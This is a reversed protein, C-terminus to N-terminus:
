GSDVIEEPRDGPGTSCAIIGEDPDSEELISELEHRTGLVPVNHIRMGKLNPDGNVLGIVRYDKFRNNAIDRLVPETSDGCGVVLVKKRLLAANKVTEHFRRLIRIGGLLCNCLVWDLVIVARSYPSFAHITAVGLLITLSSLTTTALISELDRVGTFRWVSRFLGFAQAWIMRIVVVLGVTHLFMRFETAPVTGDFRLAFAAVNAAAFLMAQLAATIAVRHRSMAALLRDFAKDPYILFVLTATILRLDNLLSADRTYHRAMRIKDPLVVHVYTEEPDGSQALLDSEDRYVISAVDTIGPRAKLISRYDQAYMMVYQELEPRSGVLSMDGCLVNWLQPLEDIKTQRLFHGVRTIRPDRGVTIGPGIEAANHVMTRFKFMPFPRLYRGMRRQRFFVPGPSDLRVAVAAILFIPALLILGAASLLFDLVRKM